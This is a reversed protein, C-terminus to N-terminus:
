FGSKLQSLDEDFSFVSPKFDHLIGQWGFTMKYSPNLYYNFDQKLNYDYIGAELNVDIGGNEVSFGYDYDSYIFSHSFM